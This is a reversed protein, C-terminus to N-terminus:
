NNKSWLQRKTEETESKNRVIEELFENEILKEPKNLVNNSKM